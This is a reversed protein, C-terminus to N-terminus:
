LGLSELSVIKTMARSTGAMWTELAAEAARKTQAEELM